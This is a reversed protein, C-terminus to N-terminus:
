EVRDLIAPDFNETKLADQVFWKCEVSPQEWGFQPATILRSVTMVPGGSHLKVWFGRLGMTGRRGGGNIGSCWGCRVSGSSAGYRLWNMM